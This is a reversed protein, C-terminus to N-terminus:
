RRINTFWYPEDFRECQLRVGIVFGTDNRRVELLGVEFENWGFVMVELWRTFGLPAFSYLERPGRHIPFLSRVTRNLFEACLPSEASRRSFKITTGLGKVTFDELCSLQPSTPMIGKLIALWSLLTDQYWLISVM